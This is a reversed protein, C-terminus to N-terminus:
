ADRKMKQLEKKVELLFYEVTRYMDLFRKKSTESFFSQISLQEIYSSITDIQKLHITKPSAESLWKKMLMNWEDNVAKVEDVFPKIIEYFDKKDGTEKVEHFNEMYIKHYMILKETKNYLEEQM